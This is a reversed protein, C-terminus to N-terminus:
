SGGGGGGCAGGLTTVGVAVVAVGGGGTMMEAIFGALLEAYKVPISVDSARETRVLETRLPWLVAPKMISPSNWSSGGGGYRGRLTGGMELSELIRVFLRASQALVWRMDFSGRDTLGKASGDSSSSSM